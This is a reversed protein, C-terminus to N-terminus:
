KLDVILQSTRNPRVDVWFERNIGFRGNILTIRHRGVPLRHHLMPTTGGTDRGDIFVRAWPKSNLNLYGYQVQAPPRPATPQVLPAPAAVPPRTAPPRTVPPKPPRRTRARPARKGRDLILKAHLKHDDPAAPEFARSWPRFRGREVVVQYRRGCPVKAVTAPTKGAWLEKGAEDLVRYRAGPPVSTIRLQTLEPPLELKVPETKGARVTVETEARRGDAHQVAIKLKGPALGRVELPAVGPQEKGDILVRTGPVNCEVRVSGRPPRPRPLKLRLRVSAGERLDVHRLVSQFGPARVVIRHPGIPLGDITIPTAGQHVRRDDVLVEVHAPQTELGLSSTSGTSSVALWVVTAAVAICVLGFAFLLLLPRRQRSPPAPPAAAAGGGPARAWVIEAKEPPPADRQYSPERDYVTTEDEEEDWV